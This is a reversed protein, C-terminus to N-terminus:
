LPPLQTALHVVAQGVHQAQMLLQPALDSGLSDFWNSVGNTIDSWRSVVYEEGIILVAVAAAGGATLAFGLARKGLYATVGLTADLAKEGWGMDPDYQAQINEHYDWSSPWDKPDTDQKPM